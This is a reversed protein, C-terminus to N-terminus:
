AAIATPAGIVFKGTPNVHWVTEPTIWAEPLTKRHLTRRYSARRALKIERRSAPDVFRNPHRRGAQRAGYKVTVQSKADPGLKSAEGSGAKREFALDELIKHAYYIPAPMLEPTERCAYGFMIGQDGAGEDKNGATTSAKRSTPPNPM